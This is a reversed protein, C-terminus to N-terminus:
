DHRTLRDLWGDPGRRCDPLLLVFAERLAVTAMLSILILDFSINHPNFM